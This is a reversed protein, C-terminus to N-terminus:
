GCDPRQSNCRDHEISNMADHLVKTRVDRYHHLRLLPGGLLGLARKWAQISGEGPGKNRSLSSSPSDKGQM